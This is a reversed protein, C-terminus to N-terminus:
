KGINLRWQSIVREWPKDSSIYLPMQDLPLEFILKTIGKEKCVRKNYGFSYPGILEYILDAEYYRSKSKFKDLSFDIINKWYSPESSFFSALVSALMEVDSINYHPM